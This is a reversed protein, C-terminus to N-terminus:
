KRFLPNRGTLKGADLDDFYKQTIVKPPTTTYPLEAEVADVKDSDTIANMYKDKLDNATMRGAKYDRVDDQRSKGRIATMSYEGDENPTPNHMYHQGSAYSLGQLAEVDRLAQFANVNTNLFAKRRAKKPDSNDAATRAAWNTGSNAPDVAGTASIEGNRVLFAAGKAQLQNIENSGEGYVDMATPQEIYSESKVGSKEGFLDTALQVSNVDGYLSQLNEQDYVKSMGQGAYPSYATSPLHTSSFPNQVEYGDSLLGNADSVSMQTGRQDVGNINRTQTEIRGRKPNASQAANGGGPNKKRLETIEKSHFGTDYTKGDITILTGSAQPRSSQNKNKTTPKGFIQNFLGTGARHGENYAAGGTVMDFPTGEGGVALAGAAGLSGSLMGAASRGFARIPNEGQQIQMGADLTGLAGPAVKSLAGRTLGRAAPANLVTKTATVGPISPAHYGSSPMRVGPRLAPIPTATPVTPRPTPINPNATVTPKPRPISVQPRPQAQPRPAPAQPKQIPATPTVTPKSKYKDIFNLLNQRSQEIGPTNKIEQLGKPMNPNIGPTVYGKGVFFDDYADPTILQNTVGAGPNRNQLIEKLAGMQNKDLGFKSYSELMNNIMQTNRDM